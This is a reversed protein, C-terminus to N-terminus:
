VGELCRGVWNGREGFDSMGGLGVDRFLRVDSGLWRRVVGLIIWWKTDEWNGERFLDLM